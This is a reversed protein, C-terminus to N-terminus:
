KCLKKYRRAIKCLKKDRTAKCYKEAKEAIKCPDRSFIGSKVGADIVYRRVLGRRCWRNVRNYFILAVLRRAALRKSIRGHKYDDVIAHVLCRVKGCGRHAKCQPYVVM